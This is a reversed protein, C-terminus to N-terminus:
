VLKEKLLELFSEEGHNLRKYAVSKSIGLERRWQSVNLRKGNVDFYRMKRQKMRNENKSIWQCNSPEYNGDNNIRDIELTDSYGNKFAWEHFNRFGNEGLWEDCIRIGRGGYSKYSKSKPNYCRAKMGNWIIFTRPKGGKTIGHKELLKASNEKRYCGCSKSKGQILKGSTVIHENGCDCHCLWMVNGYKNKGNTKIAVLRGFRQGTLDKM